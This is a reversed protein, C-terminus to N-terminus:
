EREGKCLHENYTYGCEQEPDFGKKLASEYIAGAMFVLAPVTICLLLAKM